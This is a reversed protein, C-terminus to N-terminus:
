SFNQYRHVHMCMQFYLYVAASLPSHFSCDLSTQQQKLCVYKKCYPHIVRLVYEWWDLETAGVRQLLETMDLEKCGCLSCCALSGQGDGVGPAQEFDRGNLRHHWRVMEDEKTGKQEQSWDKGADPDKRILWNKVDPPWHIPILM